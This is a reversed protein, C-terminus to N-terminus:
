VSLNHCLSKTRLGEFSWTELSSTEVQINWLCRLSLMVGSPEDGRWGGHDGKERQSGQKQECM